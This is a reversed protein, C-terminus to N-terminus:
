PGAFDSAPPGQGSGEHRQRSWEELARELARARGSYPGSLAKLVDLQVRLFPEARANVPDDSEREGEMHLGGWREVGPVQLEHEVFSAADALVEATGARKAAGLLLQRTGPPFDFTVRDHHCVEDPRVVPLLLGAIFLESLLDPASGPVVRSQVHRMVPLNLPVAALAAALTGAGHSATRGFDVVLEEATVASHRVGPFPPWSLRAAQASVLVTPLHSWSGPGRALFKAWRWLPAERLPLVPVPFMDGEADEAARPRQVGRVHGYVARPRAAIGTSPWLEEPLLHVVVVPYREGLAHLLEAAVGTYWSGALGDTLVLVPGSTAGDAQTRRGGTTPPRNWESMSRRDFTHAVEQRCLGLRRLLHVFEDTVPRWFEMSLGPDVFVTLNWSDAVAPGPQEAVWATTGGVPGILPRVADAGPVQPLLPKLAAAIRRKRLLVAAPSSGPFDPPRELGRAMLWDPEAGPEAGPGDPGPLRNM